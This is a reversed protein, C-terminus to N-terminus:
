QLGEQGTPAYEENVFKHPMRGNSNQKYEMYRRHAMLEGHKNLPFYGLAIHKGDKRICATFIVDRRRLSAVYVGAYKSKVKIGKATAQRYFAGYDVNEPFTM